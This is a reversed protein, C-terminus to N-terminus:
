RDEPFPSPYIFVAGAQRLKRRYLAIKERVKYIGLVGCLLYIRYGFKSSWTDVAWRQFQMLDQGHNTGKRHDPHVYMVMEQVFYQKSWWWQMPVMITVAVIKRDSGNIVGVIGGRRRTGSCVHEMIRDNDPPAVHAANEAVDLLLLDLIAQEDAPVAARVTKPAETPGNVPKRERENAIMLRLQRRAKYIDGDGLFAIEDPKLVASGDSLTITEERYDWPGNRIKAKVNM